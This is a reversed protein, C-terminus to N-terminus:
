LHLFRLKLKSWGFYARVDVGDDNVAHLLADTVGAYYHVRADDKLAQELPMTNEDKVAFGNETM